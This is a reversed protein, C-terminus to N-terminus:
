QELTRSGNVFFFHTRVFPADGGLGLLGSHWNLGGPSVDESVSDANLPTFADTLVNCDGLPSLLKFFNDLRLATPTVTFPHVDLDVRRTLLATRILQHYPWNTVDSFLDASQDGIGNLTKTTHCFLPSTGHEKNLQREEKVVQVLIHIPEEGLKFTYVWIRVYVYPSDANFTPHITKKEAPMRGVLFYKLCKKGIKRRPCIKKAHEFAGSLSHHSAKSFFHGIRVASAYSHSAGSYTVAVHDAAAKRFRRNIHSSLLLM